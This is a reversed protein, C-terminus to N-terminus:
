CTHVGLLIGDARWSALLRRTAVTLQHRDPHQLERALHASAGNGDMGQAVLELLRSSPPNLEMFRPVGGADRYVVLHTPAERRPRWAVGIRHVPYRYHLHMLAPNVQAPRVMPDGAPDIATPPPETVVTDVALEAWEYHALEAFWRPLRPTRGALLYRVFERPIDRFYPSQCPWDRYFARNLRRWRPDGLLTRGVPFCADLFGTINNFLLEEYVAMANRPVGAPRPQRPDRLRRAFAEQFRQFGPIPANM